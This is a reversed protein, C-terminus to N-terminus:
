IRPEPIFWGLYLRYGLYRVAEPTARHPAILLWLFHLLYRATLESPVSACRAERADDVLENWGYTSPVIRDIAKGSRSRWLCYEWRAGPEFHKHTLRTLDPWVSKCEGKLNTRVLLHLLGLCFFSSSSFTERSATGQEDFGLRRRAIQEFAYYPTALADPNNSRNAKVLTRLLASLEFDPAVTPDTARKFFLLALLQPVAGEGWLELHEHRRLLLKRILEDKEAFVDAETEKLRFWLLAFVGMLLTYRWRYIVWDELSLGEVLSGRETVDDLLRLAADFAAEEALGVALQAARDLAHGHREACGIVYVAFLTWAVVAAFHNNERNFRALGIGVLIATSSARRQMENRGIPVDDQRLRLTTLLLRDVKEVPLLARGNHTLLDLLVAVDDLETPWLAEGLRMAWDLLLGRSIIQIRAPLGADAFGRNMDDVIRHAEEDVQGNTVLYSRHPVDPVGPLVIKQTALELLQPQIDRM